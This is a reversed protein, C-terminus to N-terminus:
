GELEPTFTGFILEAEDAVEPAADPQVSTALYYRYPGAVRLTAEYTPQGAPADAGLRVVTGEPTAAPARQIIRASGAFTKLQSLSQSIFTPFDLKPDETIWLTADAGGDAAVASFTAGAPPDTREWGKPLAVSFSSERVFKTRKSGQPTAAAPQTADAGPDAPPAAPTATQSVSPPTTPATQEDDGQLLVLAAIVLVAAIPVSLLRWARSDPEFKPLSLSPLSIKPLSVNPGKALKPKSLKPAAVKPMSLKPMSVKPMALKPISIKPATLKRKRAKPPRTLAEVARDEMALPQAVKAPEPAVEPKPVAYSVGDILM